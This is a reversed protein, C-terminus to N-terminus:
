SEEFFSHEVGIRKERRWAFTTLVAVVIAFGILVIAVATSSINNTLMITRSNTIIVIGGILTGFPAHPIRGALQAAFPAMLVGGLLLGSIVKWDLGSTASGAVFGASAAFAVLFESASVTGIVRRPEFTTVSLLTPTTVPGWGGGGSADIFGAFLGLPVLFKSTPRGAIVPVLRKGLGFRIVLIVGMVLLLWSMWVKADSLSFKSLVTAGAVAGVAGPLGLRLVIQWDVNKARWHSAGSAFTTGLEAFHVAASAALPTAGVLVLLSSSTIGFAMGLTGDILQALAGVIAFILLSM